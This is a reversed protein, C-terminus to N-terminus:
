RRLGNVYDYLSSLWGPTSNYLFVAAILFLVLLIICGPPVIMRERVRNHRERGGTAGQPRRTRQDQSASGVTSPRAQRQGAPLPRTPPSVDGRPRATGQVGPGPPQVGSDTRAARRREAELSQDYASTEGEPQGGGPPRGAATERERRDDGAIRDQPHDRQSGSNDVVDRQPEPDGASEPELLARLAEVFRSGNASGTAGSQAPILIELEHSARTFGVYLLRDQLQLAPENSGAHGPLNQGRAAILFVIKWYRGRAAQVTGLTVGEPSATTRPFLAPNLLDLFWVLRKRASDGDMGPTTEGPNLPSGPGPELNPFPVDAQELEILETARHFLNTPSAGPDELMRDLDRRAAIVRKLDAYIESTPDFREAQREAAQVTDIGEALAIRFIEGATQSNVVQRRLDSATFAATSFAKIDAPNLTWTLLSIIRRRDSDPPSEVDGLVNYPVFRRDLEPKLREITYPDPAICAIDRWGFGRRFLSPASGEIFAAMAAPDDAFERLVPTPGGPSQSTMPSTELGTPSEHGALRTSLDATVGTHLYTVGLRVVEYPPRDETFRALLDPDAGRAADIRQNPDTALTISTAPSSMLKLFDCYAPTLDQFADIFLHRFRTEVFAERLEPGQQMAKTATPVLDDVDLAGRLKHEDGYKAIIPKINRAYHYDGDRYPADQPHVNQNLLHWVYVDHIERPTSTSGGPFEAFLKAITELLQGRDWISFHPSIGLVRAGGGRLYFTALQEPTGVFIRRAAEAIGPSRGLQRRVDAIGRGNVSLFAVAEPQVGDKLLDAVYGALTATKGTGPGGKIVLTRGAAPDQNKDSQHM